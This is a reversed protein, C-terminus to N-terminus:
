YKFPSGCHGLLALGIDVIYQIKQKAISNQKHTRPCMVRYVVGNAQFYKHLPRFQEGM